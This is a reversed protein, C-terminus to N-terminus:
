ITKGIKTVGGTLNGGGFIGHANGTYRLRGASRVDSSTM